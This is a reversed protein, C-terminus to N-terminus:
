DVDLGDAATSDRLAAEAQMEAWAAPDASFHADDSVAEAVIRARLAPTLEDDLEDIRAQQESACHAAEDPFAAILALNAASRLAQATAM